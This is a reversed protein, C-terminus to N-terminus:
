KIGLDEVRFLERPYEKKDVLEQLNKMVVPADEKYTVGFWKSDTPILKIKGRGERIFKDAMIPVFFEAKPDQSNSKLFETFSKQIFDFVTPHFCWFNMSVKIDAAVESKKENEEYVIKGNERYIKTRENVAVLFGQKDVECIGRSVSGHESLTRELEYGILAYLTPSCENVLFDYSRRFADRGYFDDANIVAFPENVVIKATLVAHATGWPKTREPPAKYGDTFANMEQYVYRTEIKGRLRPEFINRFNEAFEKRIIFVIKGYGTAIADYMSYDIITEGSPGFGEVQKMSGYRSAMGAALIVLTPKM